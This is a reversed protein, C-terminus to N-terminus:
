YNTTRKHGEAAEPPFEYPSHKAGIKLNLRKPHAWSGSVLVSLCGICVQTGDGNWSSVVRFMSWTKRWVCILHFVSFTFSVFISMKTARNKRIPELGLRLSVRADSVCKQEIPTGYCLWGASITKGLKGTVRSRVPPTLHFVSFIFSVFISM